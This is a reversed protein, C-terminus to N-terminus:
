MIEWLVAGISLAFVLGLVVCAAWYVAVLIDDQKKIKALEARKKAEMRERRAEACFRVYDEYMGARGFLQMAERIENEMRKVEELALFESLDSKSGDANSGKNRAKKEIADKNLAFNAIQKGVSAIESSNEICTKIVSYAANCAALEALM